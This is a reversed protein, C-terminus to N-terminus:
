KNLPKIKLETASNFSHFNSYSCYSCISVTSFSIRPIHHNVIIALIQCVSQRSQSFNGLTPSALLWHGSASQSIQRMGLRLSADGKRTLKRRLQGGLGIVGLIRCLARWKKLVKSNYFLKYPHGIKPALQAQFQM